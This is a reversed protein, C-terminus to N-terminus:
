RQSPLPKTTPHQDTREGAPGCFWPDLRAYHGWVHSYFEEKRAGTLVSRVEGTSIKQVTGVQAAIWQLQATEELAFTAITANEISDGCVAVGHNKLILAMSDGIADRCMRGREPTDIQRDFDLIPVQPAFIAGRNGVPLINVGAIGFATAYTPHAHVVSTVDPRAKMIELHLFREDVPEIRGELWNGEIDVTVIDDVDTDILSRGESHIHGLILVQDTGPIRASVHGKTIPWIGGATLIRHARALRRRLALVETEMTSKADAYTPRHVNM